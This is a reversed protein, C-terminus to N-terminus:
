DINFILFLRITDKDTIKINLLIINMFKTFVYNLLQKTM